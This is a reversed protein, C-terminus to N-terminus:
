RSYNLLELVYRSYKFGQNDVLFYRTGKRTKIRLIVLVHVDDKFIKKYFGETGLDIKLLPLTDLENLLHLPQKSVDMTNAEDLDQIKRSMHIGSHELDSILSNIYESTNEM